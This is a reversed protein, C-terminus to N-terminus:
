ADRKRDSSSVFVQHMASPNAASSTAYYDTSRLLEYLV